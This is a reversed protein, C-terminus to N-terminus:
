ITPTIRYFTFKFVKSKVIENLRFFFLPMLIIAMEKCTKKSFPKNGDPPGCSNICHGVLGHASVTKKAGSSPCFM